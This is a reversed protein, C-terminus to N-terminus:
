CCLVIIVGVALPTCCCVVGWVRDCDQQYAAHQDEMNPNTVGRRSNAHSLMIANALQWQLSSQGEATSSASGGELFYWRLRRSVPTCVHLPGETDMTVTKGLPMTDRVLLWCGSSTSIEVRLLKDLNTIDHSPVTFPIEETGLSGAATNITVRELGHQCELITQIARVGTPGFGLSHEVHLAALNTGSARWCPSQLWQRTAVGIPKLSHPEAAHWRAYIRCGPATIISRPSWDEIHLHRLRQVGSIDFDLSNVSFPFSRWARLRLTELHSFAQM